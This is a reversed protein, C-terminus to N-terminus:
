SRKDISVAEIFIRCEDSIRHTREGPETGRSMIPM